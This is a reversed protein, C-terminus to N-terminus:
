KSKKAAKAPSAASGGSVTVEDRLAELTKDGIGEVKSLEDISKFNGHQKRYELIANAKAPGIGQLTELTKADASNINVPGAWGLASFGILSGAVLTKIWMM